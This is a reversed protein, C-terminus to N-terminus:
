DILKSSLNSQIIHSEPKKEKNNLLRNKLSPKKNQNFLGNDKSKEKKVLKSNLNRIIGVPKVLNNQKKHYVQNWNTKLEISNLYVNKDNERIIKPASSPDDYYEGNVINWLYFDEDKLNLEKLKIKYCNNELKFKENINIPILVTENTSKRFFNVLHSKQIFSRPNKTLMSKDNGKVLIQSSSRKKKKLKQFNPNKNQVSKRSSKLKDNKEVINSDFKNTTEYILKNLTRSTKVKIMVACIFVALLTLTVLGMMVKIFIDQNVTKTFFSILKKTQYNIDQTEKLKKNVILLKERQLMVEDDIMNLEEKMKEATSLLGLAIKRSEDLATDAHTVMQQDNIFHPETQIFPPEQKKDEVFNLGDFENKLTYVEQELQDIETNFKTPNRMQFRSLENEFKIFLSELSKLENNRDTKKLTKYHKVRNQIESIYSTFTALNSDM